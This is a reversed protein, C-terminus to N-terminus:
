FGGAAQEELAYLLLAIAALGWFIAKSFIIWHLHGQAYLTEEPILNKEVYGM